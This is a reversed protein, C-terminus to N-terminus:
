PEGGNTADWDSRTKADAVKGRRIIGANNVLVSIAGVDRHITTALADCTDRNTVDLTYAAASGGLAGAVRAAAAGNVDAILVRAGAQAMGHAIGEGIGSGGGTILVIRGDLVGQM